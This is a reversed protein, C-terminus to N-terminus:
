NKDSGGHAELKKLLKRFVDSDHYALSALLGILYGKEYMSQQAANKFTRKSVAAQLLRNVLSVYNQLMIM